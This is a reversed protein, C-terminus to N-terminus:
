IKNITPKARSVNEASQSMLPADPKALGSAGTILWDASITLLAFGIILLIYNMTKTYLTISVIIAISAIAIM